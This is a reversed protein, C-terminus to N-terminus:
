LRAGTSSRLFLTPAGGTVLFVVPGTLRGGRAAEILAAMAKAGFVPDLLVGETRAVLEQAQAGVPSPIGYGHGAWGGRVDVDERRPRDLGLLVAAEASLQHVRERCEEQPRSVTVGVVATLRGGARGLLMGAQTGCSGTALWVTVPGLGQEAAQDAIEDAAVAYGVSGRGTAGGRPLVLPRRGEERLRTGIEELMKDVSARDPDGTWSVHAKTLHQLLLNGEAAAPPAGYFCLHAELGCRRAALAALLAWNSQPGSGTVLVDCGRDLGDGLLFELVRLKNGGLGIGTLDDRKFWIEAGLEASLRPAPQLPTPLTTLRVRPLVAVAAASM